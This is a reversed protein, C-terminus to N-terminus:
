PPEEVATAQLQAQLHSAFMTTEARCIELMIWYMYATRCSNFAVHEPIYFPRPRCITHGGQDGPIFGM